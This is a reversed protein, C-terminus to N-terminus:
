EDHQKEWKTSGDEQEVLEYKIVGNIADIQGQKYGIREGAFTFFYMMGLLGLTIVMISAHNSM